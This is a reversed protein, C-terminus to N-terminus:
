VVEEMEEKPEFVEKLVAQMLLEADKKSDTIQKELEDCLAMLQNVKEM